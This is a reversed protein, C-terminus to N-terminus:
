NTQTQALGEARVIRRVFWLVFVSLAFTMLAVMVAAGAIAGAFTVFRSQSGVLVEAYGGAIPGLALSVALLVPSLFACANAVSRAERRSNDVLLKRFVWWRALGASALLVIALTTVEGWSTVRASPGTWTGPPLFLASLVALLLLCTATFLFAAQGIIAFLRIAGRVYLKDDGVLSFSIV